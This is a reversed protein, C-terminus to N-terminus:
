ALLAEIGLREIATLLENGTSWYGAVLVRLLTQTDEAVKGELVSALLSARDEGSRAPDSLTRRLRPQTGLLGAVALIEDAVGALPVPRNGTALTSLRDAAAAYSQRSVQEM